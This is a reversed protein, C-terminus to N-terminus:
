TIEVHFVNTTPKILKIFILDFKEQDFLGAKSFVPIM